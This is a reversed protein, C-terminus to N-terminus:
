RDEPRPRGSKVEVLGVSARGASPAGVILDIIGILVVTGGALPIVIREQDPPAVGAIAPAM